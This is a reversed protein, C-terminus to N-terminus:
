KSFKRHRDIVSHDGKVIYEHYDGVANAESENLLIFGKEKYVNGTTLGAKYLESHWKEHAVTRINDRYVDDYEEKGGSSVGAAAFGVSQLGYDELKEVVREKLMDALERRNEDDGRYSVIVTSTIPKGVDEAVFVVGHYVM